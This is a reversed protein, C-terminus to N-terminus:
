SMGSLTEFGAPFFVTKELVGPVPALPDVVPSQDRRIRGPAAAMDGFGGPSCNDAMLTGLAQGDTGMRFM